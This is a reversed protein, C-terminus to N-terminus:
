PACYATSKDTAFNTNATSIDGSRKLTGQIRWAWSPLEPVSSEVKLTTSLKRGNSGFSSALNAHLGDSYPLKKQEILIVGGLADSGYRVSEAGKVVTIQDAVLSRNRSRPRCGM